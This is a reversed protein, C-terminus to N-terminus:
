PEGFKSKLLLYQALEEADKEAKRKKQAEEFSVIEEPKSARRLQYTAHGEDPHEVKFGCDGGHRKILEDVWDRLDKLTGTTEDLDQYVFETSFEGDDGRSVIGDYLWNGM